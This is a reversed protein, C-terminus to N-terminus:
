LNGGADLAEAQVLPVRVYEAAVAEGQRPIGGEIVAACGQSASGNQIDRRFPDDKEGHDRYLSVAHVGAVIKIM